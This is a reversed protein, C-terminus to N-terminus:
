QNGSTAGGVGGAALSKMFVPDFAMLVADNPAQQNHVFTGYELGQNNCTTPAALFSNTRTVTNTSAPITTSLTATQTISTTVIVTVPPPTSVVTIYQTSAPQTQTERETSTVGPATTVSVTRETVTNGPATTTDRLTTIETSAPQISEVSTRDTSLVTQRETSVLMSTETFGRQSTTVIVTQTLSITDPPVMSTVTVTDTYRETSAPIVVPSPLAATYTVEITQTSASITTERTLIVTVADQMTTYTITETSAPMISYSTSPPTLFHAVNM